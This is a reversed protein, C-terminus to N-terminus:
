PLARVVLTHAGAGVVELSDNLTSTALGPGGASLRTRPGPLM